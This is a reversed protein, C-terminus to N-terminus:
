RSRLLNTASAIAGSGRAFIYPGFAGTLFCSQVLNMPSHAGDPATREHENAYTCGHESGRKGRGPSEADCTQYQRGVEAGGAKSVFHRSCRPSYRRIPKSAEATGKEQKTIPASCNGAERSPMRLAQVGSKPEIKAAIQSLHFRAKPTNRPKSPTVRAFPNPLTSSLLVVNMAM